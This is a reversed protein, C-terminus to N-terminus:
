EQILHKIAKKADEDQAEKQSSVFLDLIKQRLEPDEVKADLAKKFNQGGKVVQAFAKSLGRAGFQVANVGLAVGPNMASAVGVAIKLLVYGIFLVVVFGGAWLVYPVQILGTGEIKKGVNEDNGERFDDLRANLKAIARRLDAALEAASDYSPRLPPGLSESIAENLLATGTTNSVVNPSANESIASIAAKLSLERAKFASQRQLEKESSKLTPVSKIKDQFLEVKKPILTGCGCMAILLAGLLLRKM